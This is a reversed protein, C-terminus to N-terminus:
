SALQPIVKDTFQLFSQHGLPACLLYEVGANERLAAVQEVVREPSGHLIVDELYREVSNTTRTADSVSFSGGVNRRAANAYSKVMWSAGREAVERAEADSAAVALLRAAPLDRGAISHGAAELQERYFGHKEALEAHSCHPDFLVSHGGEAAWRIAEASTVGIWTPPHPMQLPKPLVEVDDYHYFTGAFNLRPERWAALVVDVAERFRAHSEEPPVDFVEFEKRDFGRGAGWNM